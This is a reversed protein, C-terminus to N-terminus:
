WVVVLPGALQQHAADFLQAYDTETFGKRQDGRRRRNKLVRCFVRPGRGRRVAIVAARSVRRSSGGVVGGGRACGGGGGCGGRGVGGRGGRGREGARRGGRVPRAGGPDRGGAGVVGAAALRVQGRRAREAATLGGGEGYRM